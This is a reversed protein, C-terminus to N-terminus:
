REYMDFNRGKSQYSDCLTRFDCRNCHEGVTPRVKDPDAAKIQGYADRMEAEAADIAEQTYRAGVMDGGELYYLCARIDEAKAGFDRQVVKCYMRLQLDKMVTVPNKRWPGKKTTKYDIIFFKDGKTIIRDIFGVTNWNHPPNLDYKFAYEIQSEVNLGIKNIFSRLTKCHNVFKKKYEDNLKPATKGPELELQGNVVEAIVDMWQNEDGRKVYEEAIKHIMKGYAFYISEPGPPPTKYHYKFRYQKACTDWCGKRSVSIHEINLRHNHGTTLRTSM